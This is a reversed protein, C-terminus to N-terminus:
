GITYAAVTLIAMIIAILVLLRFAYEKILKGRKIALLSDHKFQSAGDRKHHHHHRHEQHKESM